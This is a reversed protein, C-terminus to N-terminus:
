KRTVLFGILLIAALGFALYQFGQAAEVINLSAVPQNELEM